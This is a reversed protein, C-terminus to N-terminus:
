HHPANFKRLIKRSLLIIVIVPPVYFVLGDILAGAHEAFPNPWHWSGYGKAIWPALLMWPVLIILTTIATRM